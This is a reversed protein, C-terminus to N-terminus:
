ESNSCNFTRRFWLRPGSDERVEGVDVRVQACEYDYDTLDLTIGEDRSQDARWAQIIYSGAHTPYGEFYVGSWRDDGLESTTEAASPIEISTEYVIEDQESIDIFLTHTDSQYNVAFLQDIQTDKTPKSRDFCGALAVPISAASWRLVRRRTQPSM